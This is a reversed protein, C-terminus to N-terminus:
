HTTIKLDGATLKMNATRLSWNHGPMSYCRNTLAVENNLYLVAVSHDVILSFTYAKGAEFVFPVRTIETGNNYAAIRNSAPEFRINYSGSSGTGANLGISANGTTNSFSLTGSIKVSGNIAGFQYGAPATTGDITYATGSVNVSGEQAKVVPAAAKGFYAQVAEPAKVGLQGNNLQVLEHSILNGAWNRTGNDNEPNRRHAWGFAYYGTGNSAMRGAYFQHGDFMDNGGAPKVWPGATSSAVRYHTGPAGSWDEAFLLYYRNGWKFIDACELMLYDGEVNLTGRVQWNNAAPDTTKYVLLVGKGSQQASVVMWYESFEDNYFVYPDRFENRNFGQPANLIFGEKKTWNRLDTSTAYLIAERANPQSWGPNNNQLWSSSGNHGTYYFYYTNGAKVMSGTGPLQDQRNINGYPIAEGEYTFDLLNNTTFRHIPHQGASSQKVPDPADHLFFLQFKGEAYHPMVDGVWGAYGTSGATVPTTPVPYIHFATNQQPLPVPDIGNNKNCGTVTLLTNAALFFTKFIMKM